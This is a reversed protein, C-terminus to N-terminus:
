NLVKKKILYISIAIIGMAVVFITTYMIGEGTKISLLIDAFSMDDESDVKNAPTSDADQIGLDNYAEYIEASNRIEGMDDDSVKKTLILTLEKSQGPELKENAISSNIAVKNETIYWDKNLEAVFNFNKPIYDAVKKAYGAIAGENIVKIKYKVAITTQNLYAATLERKAFNNNYEYVATGTQNQVSINEITKEVKLDFKPDEVLGLDINYMNQTSVVVQETIAVARQEGDITINSDIADSNNTNDAGEVRYSTSSYNATDYLFVVTYNGKEIDDFSYNGNENSVKVIANGAKDKVFEKTANNFLMVQVNAQKPENEDKIGDKNEDIWIQGSIKRPEKITNNPNVVLPDKEIVHTISNIEVEGLLESTIIPTNVLTVDEKIRKAYVNVYIDITEGVDLMISMNANNDIISSGHINKEM